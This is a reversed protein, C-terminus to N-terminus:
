VKATKSSNKNETMYVITKVCTSTENKNAIKEVVTFAVFSIKLFSIIKTINKYIM